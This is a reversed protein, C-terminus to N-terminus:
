IGFKSKLYLMIDAEDTNLADDQYRGVVEMVLLDALRTESPSTGLHFGGMNNSGANGTKATGENIQVKSNAGDFRLRIIILSGIHGVLSPDYALGYSGAFGFLKQVTADTVMGLAGSNVSNGDFLTDNEEFSRINVVIYIFEPQIWTFAPIRLYNTGDFSIGNGTDTPKYNVSTYWVADHGTGNFDAWEAVRNSGDKTITSPEDSKLWFATKSINALTAPEVSEPEFINAGASRNGKISGHDSLTDDWWVSLSLYDRLINEEDTTLIEDHKIIVIERIAFPTNNEYRVLTRTFDYGILEAETTTRQIGNTKFWIYDNDADQYPTTDPVQFTYNGLSGAVTIHDVADEMLNPMQGGSVDSMRGWFLLKPGIITPNLINTGISGEPLNFIRNRIQTSM